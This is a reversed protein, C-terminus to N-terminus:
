YGGYRLQRRVEANNRARYGFPVRGGEKVSEPGGYSGPLGYGRYNYGGYSPYNYSYPGGPYMAGSAEGIDAWRDMYRNQASRSARFGAGYYGVGGYGGRRSRLAAERVSGWPTGYGSPDEGWGGEMLPRGYGRYMGYGYGGRLSLARDRVSYGGLGPTYGGQLEYAEQPGFDPGISHPVVSVTMPYEVAATNIVRIVQEPNPNPNPNPSPSPSPKPKPKPHPHPYPNPSPCPDVRVMSSTADSKAERGSPGQLTVRVSVALGVDEPGLPYTDGTIHAM